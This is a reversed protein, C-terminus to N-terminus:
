KQIAACELAGKIRAQVSDLDSAGNLAKCTWGFGDDKYRPFVHMHFHGFDTFMGGNQMITYGDPHYIEKVAKSINSAAETIRTLVQEELEDMDHCHEKPVLLVHGESIPDIDLFCCVLEDEYVIHAPSERNIIQCFACGQNEM